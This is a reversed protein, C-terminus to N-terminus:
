GGDPRPARGRRAAGATGGGQWGIRVAAFPEAQRVSVEGLRVLELLALFTVVVDLRDAGAAFLAEFETGGVSALHRRLRDTAQAVTFRERPVEQTRPRAREWVEAFVALLRDFAEPGPPAPSAGAGSAARVRGLGGAGEPRGFQAARRREFERLATAAEAFAQYAALREALRAAEAEADEAESEAVAEPPPTPLLARAKAEVLRALLVFAGTARELDAGAGRIAEVVAHVPVSAPPVTGADVAALLEGLDGSWPGVTLRVPSGGEPGAEGVPEGGEGAGWVLPPGGVRERGAGRM